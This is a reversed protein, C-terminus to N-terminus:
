QFPYPIVAIVKGGCSLPLGTEYLFQGPPSTSEPEVHVNFQYYGVLGPALGAYLIPMNCSLPTALAAPPNGPAPVGTPVPPQVPGFGTGYFHVIEGEHARNDLTVFGSWDEHIARGGAFLPDPILAPKTLLPTVSGQATAEANTHAHTTVQINVPQGTATEWPVQFAISTPSVALLPANIAGVTIRVGGLEPSLPTGQGPQYGDALGSGGFTVASGPVLTKSLDVAAVHFVTSSKFLDLKVVRGDGTVYWAVHGDDSMTFQLVGSAEDTIPFFMSGDINITYLQPKRSPDNVGLQGGSIFMAHQGDASLAPNQLAVHGQVFITDRDEAPRYLHLVRNASGSQGATYLVTRGAADIAAESGQGLNIVKGARFVSLTAGSFDTFVASGDDALVRGSMSGVAVSSSPILQKVGTQLDLLSVTFIPFPEAELFYRGNGSLWGTGNVKMMGQGPIGQITTQDRQTTNCFQGGLCIRTGTYAFVSRDRSFQPHSVLYYDSLYYVLSGLGPNPPLVPPPFSLFLTAPQPGIKYISSSAPFEFSPSPVNIVYYLSAGDGPATLDMFQAHLFNLAFLSFLPLYFRRAPV